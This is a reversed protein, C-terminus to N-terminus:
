FSVPVDGYRNPGETSKRVGAYIILGLGLWTLLGALGQGQMMQLQSPPHAPDMTVMIKM